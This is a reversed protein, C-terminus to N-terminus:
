VMRNKKYGPNPRPRNERPRAAPRVIMAPRPADAPMLDEPHNPTARGDPSDQRAPSSARSDTGCWPRGLPPQSADAFDGTPEGTPDGTVPSATRTDNRLRAASPRRAGGAAQSYGPSDM